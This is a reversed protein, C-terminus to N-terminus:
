RNFVKELFSEAEKRLDADLTNSLGQILTHVDMDQQTARAPHASRWSSGSGGGLGVVSVHSFTLFKSVGCFGKIWQRMRATGSGAM